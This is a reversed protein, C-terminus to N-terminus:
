LTESNGSNKKKKQYISNSSNSMYIYIYIFSLIAEDLEEISEYWRLELYNNLSRLMLLLSFIFCPLM